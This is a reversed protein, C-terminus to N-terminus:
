SASYKCVRSQTRPMPLSSGMSMRQGSRRRSSETEQQHSHLSSRMKKYRVRTRRTTKQRQGNRNDLSYIRTSTLPNLSNTLIIIYAACCPNQNACHNWTPPIQPSARETSSAVIFECIITVQIGSFHIRLSKDLRM